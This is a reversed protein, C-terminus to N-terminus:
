CQVAPPLALPARAQRRRRGALDEPHAVVQAASADPDWSTDPGGIWWDVTEIFCAFIEFASQWKKRTNDSGQMEAAHAKESIKQPAALVLCASVQIRPAYAEHQVVSAAQAEIAEAEVVVLVTSVRELYTIM